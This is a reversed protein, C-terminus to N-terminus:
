FLLNAFQSLILLCDDVWSFYDRLIYKVQDHITRGLRSFRMNGQVDLREVFFTDDIQILNNIPM